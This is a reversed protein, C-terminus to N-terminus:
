QEPLPETPPPTGAAERLRKGAEELGKGISAGMARVADQAADAVKRVQERTFEARLENRTRELEAARAQADARAEGDTRLAEARLTAIDAELHAFAAEVQAANADSPDARWTTLDERLEEVSEAVSSPGCAAFALALVVAPWTRMDDQYRARM